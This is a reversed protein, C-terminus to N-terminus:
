LLRPRPGFPQLNCLDPPLWFRPFPNNLDPRGFGDPHSCPAFGASSRCPISFTGEERDPLRTLGSIRRGARPPRGGRSEGGGDGGVEESESTDELEEAVKDESGVADDSGEYDEDNERQSSRGFISAQNLKTVNNLLASVEHQNECFNAFQNRPRFSVIEKKEITIDAIMEACLKSNEYDSVWTRQLGQLFTFKKIQSKRLNRIKLTSREGLRATSFIGAFLCSLTLRDGAIWAEKLNQSSSNLRCLSDMYSLIFKSFDGDNPSICEVEVSPKNHEVFLFVFLGNGSKV